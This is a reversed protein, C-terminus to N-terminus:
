SPKSIASASTKEKVTHESRLEIKLEEGRNPASNSYQNRFPSLSPDPSCSVTLVAPPANKYRNERKRKPKVAKARDKTGKEDGTKGERKITASQPPSTPSEPTLSRPSPYMSGPLNSFDPLGSM